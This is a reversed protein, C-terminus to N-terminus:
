QPVMDLDAFVDTLLDEESPAPAAKASEVAREVEEAVEKEIEALKSEDIGREEILWQRYRGVPENDEAASLGEMYETTSGFSHGGLRYTLCELFTPGGGGRAREIAEGAAAFMEPVSNGDVTLAEMGYPRFRDALRETRTYDAFATHEGFQNHQCVFVLPLQWLAAMNAAEHSGGISTAGDGFNVVTVQDTGRLQAALALGVAIPLGGGVVGTTVMLGSHPDSLHMPGGKGKSTGTVKGCMEAVMEDLPVGKAICDHTGRYTTVM